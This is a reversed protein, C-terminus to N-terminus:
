NNLENVTDYGRPVDTKGWSRPKLSHTHGAAVAYGVSTFDNSIGSHKKPTLDGLQLVWLCFQMQKKNKKKASAQIFLEQNNACSSSKIMKYKIQKQVCLTKRRGADNWKLNNWHSLSSSNLNTNFIKHLYVFLWMYSMMHTVTTRGNRVALTQKKLDCRLTRKWWCTNWRDNSVAQYQSTSQNLTVKLTLHAICWPSQESQWLKSSRNDEM